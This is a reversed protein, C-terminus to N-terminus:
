KSLKCLYAITSKKIELVRLKATKFISELEGKSFQESIGDIGFDDFIVTGNTKVEKIQLDAQKYAKLREKLADESYVSIFILGKKKLVRKMESLIAQKESAFNAFTSMCLVVDFSNDEFPLKKAEALIIKAEPISRLNIKANEIATEDHDVGTLNLTIDSIEKLSRGDGCGVELVAANKQINELLFEKEEKFWKKYSDPNNNLIEEWGLINKKNM